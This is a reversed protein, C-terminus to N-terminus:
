ESRPLDPDTVVMYLPKGLSMDITVRIYQAIVGLSFLLLGGIVLLATFTSAWGRTQIEVGSIVQVVVTAAGALGLLFFAFGIVSVFALPRTGASVVMRGFHSLLSGFTYGSNGRAEERMPISVTATRATVWSLAVDLYVGPGAFAASGRGIDGQILRYSNFNKFDPGSVLASAASKALHSASNRLVGHPPRNSPTAYVLQASTEYARDILDGIYAPDQQGDEDMTIIWDGTSASMGAFTAAHQGFNRSLWVPRVRDFRDALTRIVSDSKDPGRDWVLVIEKVSFEIGSDTLRTSGSRLIEEVVTGLTEQGSYVPIVVSVDIM